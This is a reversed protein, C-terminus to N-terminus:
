PTGGSSPEERGSSLTTVLGLAAQEARRLHPWRAAALSQNVAQRSVGLHKAVEQQTSSRRVLSIVQRQRETMGDYAELILDLLAELGPDPDPQLVRTRSERVDTGAVGAVAERAARDMALVATELSEPADREAGPRARLIAACFTTKEPRLEEAVTLIAQLIAEPSALALVLVGDGTVDSPGASLEPAGATLAAGAARLRAKADADGRETGDRAHVRAALAVLSTPRAM